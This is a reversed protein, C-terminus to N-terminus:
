HPKDCQNIQPHQFLGADKSYIGNSWPTHDKWHIESNPKNINQESYKCGLEDPIYTQSKRKKYHGQRANTDSIEKTVTRSALDSTLTDVPNAEEM